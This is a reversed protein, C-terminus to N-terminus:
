ARAGIAGLLRPWGSPAPMRGDPLREDQRRHFCVGACDPCITCRFGTPCLWMAWDRRCHGCPLGSHVYNRLLGARSM